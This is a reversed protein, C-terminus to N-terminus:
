KGKRPSVMIPAVERRVRVIKDTEHASGTTTDFYYYPGAAIGFSAGRESYPTHLWLQSTFGDRHHLRPHGENYYEASLSTFDNMRQSFGLEAAFSREHVKHNDLSGALLSVDQAVALDVPLLLLLGM